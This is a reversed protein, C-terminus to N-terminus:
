NVKSFNRKWTGLYNLKELSQRLILVRYSRSYITTYLLSLLTHIPSIYVLLCAEQFLKLCMNRECLRLIVISLVDALFALCFGFILVYKQFYIQIFLLHLLIIHLILRKLYLIRQSHFSFHTRTTYVTLPAQNLQKQVVFGSQCTRPPNQLSRARVNGTVM